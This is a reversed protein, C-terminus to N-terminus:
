DLFEEVLEEMVKKRFESNKFAAEILKQRFKPDDELVDSVEDAIDEAIVKATKEDSLAVEIIEDRFAEDKLFAEVDSKKFMGM